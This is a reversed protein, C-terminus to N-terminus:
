PGLNQGAEGIRRSVLDPDDLDHALMLVLKALLVTHQEQGAADLARALAEYVAELDASKM